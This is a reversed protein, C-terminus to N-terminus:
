KRKVPVDHGGVVRNPTRGPRVPALSDGSGLQRVGGGVQRFEDRRSAGSPPRRDQTVNSENKHFRVFQIDDIFMLKVTESEDNGRNLYVFGRISKIDHKICESVRLQAYGSVGVSTRFTAISDNSYRVALYATADKTGQQYLYNAYFSMMFSDGKHYSTDAKLEIDFRNYPPAPTLMVSTAGRWINATDGNASYRTMSSRMGNSSVGLSKGYDVMRDNVRNYIKAFDEAHGYYYVLSSDFEAETVGHKKLVANYYLTRLYPTTGEVSPKSAMERSLYYDFLIDEMEDPQIVDGPVSPKCGILLMVCLVAWIVIHLKKGM